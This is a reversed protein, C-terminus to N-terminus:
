NLLEGLIFIQKSQRSSFEVKLFRGAFSRTIEEPTEEDEGKDVYEFSAGTLGWITSRRDDELFLVVEATSRDVREVRISQFSSEGIDWPTFCAVPRGSDRWQEFVFFAVDLSSM